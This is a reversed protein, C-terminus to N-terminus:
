ITEQVKEGTSFDYKCEIIAEAVISLEQKTNITSKHIEKKCVTIIFQNDSLDSKIGKRSDAVSQMLFKKGEILNQVEKKDQTFRESLMFTYLAADVLACKEAAKISKNADRQKNGVHEAGRGEGIVRGTVNDVIRCILCVTGAPSGLMEWTELDRCWEPHTNFLCCIKEAGPKLLTEKPNRPDAPGYDVGSVFQQTVFDVIIQRIALNESMKERMQEIGGLGALGAIAPTAINSVEAIATDNM